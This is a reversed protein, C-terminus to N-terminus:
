LTQKLRIALSRTMGPVAALDDIAAEKIGKLTGFRRMLMRKRKPGIGTVNDIPSRLSSKSRLNRHYTIAFRHAEDRIRQVLYLAQSDRPLIIPEPTHPVFLEENEKALSALPIDDLGLELFVELAASLQGKGGDILVLDPIVGFSDVGLGEGEGRKEAARAAALRKFRRRIVERMSEFDDVGDVTKIKFRRYHSPKPKGDEFVVMSAVTNSGQIHSIDYCEMRRLPLPLSLEEELDSMAQQIIDTNDLWKIRNQALGQRANDAVTQVLQKHVGRQPCVLRVAGGRTQRLWETITEEDEPMHQVVVRPPVVLASEYFQKVFQGLVLTETDDDTGEMFFHERGILKGKRIFFVEVWTENSGQALAIVDMDSIPNSDVKIRQEEAVKEVAKMRDRLVAAREFELNESALEMNQNLDRTVTETDGEMFMVVQDIVKGYDEKTATGTCPAVCRNIYYELCPRPDNGTINKTCSRYPFLRKVLDMTKRVTGATAFPGFYRAGDKAVKRTIYVRPFEEALDIKLYPYTKDDKLRANYRPKYRKILTNELILAEAESDTVIYEFDHLHGLMRRIKNPLNSPSGFYSRLRNRLISAKGVYLVTGRPDKMLYVGPREPTAQLRQEVLPLPM